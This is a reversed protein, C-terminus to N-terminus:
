AGAKRYTDTGRVWQWVGMVDLLVCVAMTVVVYWLWIGFASTPDAALARELLWPWLALWPAHCLGVLKSLGLHRWLWGAWIMVLILTGLVLAGEPRTVFVFGGIVQPFNLAPGWLNMGLSLERRIQAIMRFPDLLLQALSAM